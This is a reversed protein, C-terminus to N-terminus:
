RGISVQDLARVFEQRRVPKPLYASAGLSLALEKRRVVSCVVIPIAQSQRHRRLQTLLDWGDIDPLMVDLVIIDPRYTEVAWMARQGERIHVIQYRTDETYRRYFHVLDVNDDIVLVMKEDAIPLGFTFTVSVDQRAIKLSGGLATMMEEIFESQPLKATTIPKGAITIMAQHGVGRASLTIEGGSMQEALKEIATILIQRLASPHIVVHLDAPAADIRRAISSGPNLANSLEIAALMVAKVDAIVGPANQQLSLLEQRVQDRWALDDSDPHSRDGANMELVSSSPAPSTQQWEWLRQALLRVAQQQERRLHRPTIGLRQATEKQTLEHVYRCSLLEYFRRARALPPVDLPPRIQEIAQIIAARLSDVSPPERYGMTKWLLEGPQYIPDYLHALADQLDQEFEEFAGM